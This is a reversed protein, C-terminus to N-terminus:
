NLLYERGEEFVFRKRLRDPNPYRGARRSFFGARNSNAKIFVQSILRDRLRDLDKGGVEAFARNFLCPGTDIGPRIQLIYGRMAQLSKKYFDFAIVLDDLGDPVDTDIGRMIKQFVRGKGPDVQDGALIYQDVQFCTRLFPDQAGKM